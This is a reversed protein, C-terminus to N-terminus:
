NNTHQKHLTAITRFVHGDVIEMAVQVCRGLCVHLCLAAQTRCLRSSMACCKLASGTPFIMHKHIQMTKEKRYNYALESHKPKSNELSSDYSALTSCSTSGYISTTM